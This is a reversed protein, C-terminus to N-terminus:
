WTKTNYTMYNKMKRFLWQKTVQSTFYWSLGALRQLQVQVVLKIVAAFFSISTATCQLRGATHHRRKHKLAVLLCFQTSYANYDRERERQQTWQSVINCASRPTLQPSAIRMQYIAYASYGIKACNSTSWLWQLAVVSQWGESPWTCHWLLFAQEKTLKQRMWTVLWAKQWFIHVKVRKKAEIQKKLEDQLESAQQQKAAIEEPQM